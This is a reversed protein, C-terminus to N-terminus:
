DQIKVDRYSKLKGRGKNVTRLFWRGVFFAVTGLVLFVTLLKLCDFASAINKFSNEDLWNISDGFSFFYSNVMNFVIKKSKSLRTRKSVTVTERRRKKLSSWELSNSVQASECFQLTIHCWGRKIYVTIFSVKSTTPSRANKQSAKQAFWTSLNFHTIKLM